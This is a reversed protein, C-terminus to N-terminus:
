DKWYVAKDPFIWRIGYRPDPMDGKYHSSIPITL